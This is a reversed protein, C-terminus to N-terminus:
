LWMWTGHLKYCHRSLNCSCSDSGEKYAANWVYLWVYM